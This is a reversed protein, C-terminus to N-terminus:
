YAYFKLKILEEMVHNIIIPFNRPTAEELLKLWPNEYTLLNLQIRITDADNGFSFLGKLVILHQFNVQCQIIAKLLGEWM